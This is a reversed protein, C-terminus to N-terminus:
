LEPTGDYQFHSFAAAGSGAAYLGVRLSVFGGLANHHWGSVEQSTPLQRWDEGPLRVWFDVDHRDHVIRLTARRAGNKVFREKNTRRRVSLGDTDLALGVFCRENYFLLLGAEAEDGDLAVEVNVTYFPDRPLCCLPASGEAPSTGCGALRLVGGGVEYRARDHEGLLRWQWGLADGAFDDSLPPEPPLFFDGETRNPLPRSAADLVPWGDATWVIPEILTHRGLTHFGNRYAHTVIWWDGDPTDILTGHGRSWWLEDRSATRLLPNRPANEWPGDISRARAVVVMHSTACGATGGEASLLYHWGDRLLLKPGELAEGEIRWGSPIPWGAYVKEVNGKATLGDPTLEVRHGGSLFLFRRGDPLAIHGPDIHPVHLNVPRSWPGEARPATVVHNGGSTTYYIYFLGDHYVIDPAWIDGDYDTLAPGVPQWDTLSRSHWVLLGPAYPNCSHTLYYDAGVRVMTPDPYDGRVIPFPYPM